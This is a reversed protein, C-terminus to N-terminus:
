YNLKVDLLAMRSECAGNTLHTYKMKHDTPGLHDRFCAIQSLQRKINELVKIAARQTLKEDSTGPETSIMKQLENIKVVFFERIGEWNRDARKVQAFNDIGLFEMLPSTIMDFFIKMIKCGLSFWESSIYATVLKYMNSVLRVYFILM